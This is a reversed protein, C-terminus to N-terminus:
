HICSGWEDRSDFSEPVKGNYEPKKYNGMIKNGPNLDLTLLGKIEDHSLHRLPNEHVEHPVWTTAKAKISSVLEENIPHPHDHALSLTSVLGLITLKYM